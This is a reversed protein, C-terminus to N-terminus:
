TIRIQVLEIRKDIVKEVKFIINKYETSYVKDEEPIIGILDLIFGGLTDVEDDPLSIGLEDNIKNISVAGNALYTSNDIKVISEDNKRLKDYEDFIDGLIEEILDEITVIGSFGGYEDILIALHNNSEKLDRFLINIDKTEPVFYPPRAIEELSSYTGKNGIVYKLLDKMNVIGIINDMSDKYIPVRSYQKKIIMNIAKNIEMDVDIIFVKTRPTMVAKAVKDDFDFVGQIMEKEERDLVGKEEGENIIRRIEEETIKEEVNNHKIGFLSIIFDTSYTLIKVFPLTIKYVLMVPRIATMAIKESKQVALRKPVLEGLVLTIYALIVTVIIIAIQSSADAIFRINLRKLLTGLRRSISATATASAFFGALTIGVQITAFFKSPEDVLKILLSAKKDGKAALNNIKNKNLSIISIEAAAFFANLFILLLIFILELMISNNSSNM